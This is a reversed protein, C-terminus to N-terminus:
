QYYRKLPHNTNHYQWKSKCKLSCFRQKCNKNHLVTFEEKCWECNNKYVTIGNEKNHFTTHCSKCFPRLNSDNNNMTDKDIHHLLIASKDCDSCKVNNELMEKRKIRYEILYRNKSGKKWKPHKKGSLIRSDELCTRGKNWSSHKIPKFGLATFSRHLTGVSVGTKNSIKKLSLKEGYYLRKLEKKSLEM